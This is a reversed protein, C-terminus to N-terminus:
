VAGVVESFEVGTGVAVFNLQIFNISRAPKIFIDGVFENRDIVGSTNNTEDCVVKFDYIGRRGQIDRLFPEVLNKFQSRTFEDNFEFLLSQASREIAKELTIFLRRVNIRDFASPRGLLTKDGFLIVGSGPFTVVPNIDNTYLVDRDAKDPNYALKIVNKISGRSLGAPSFFFDRDADTKAITGGIDGNLPVYRYVDNFKDYQYKYGSDLIAYSSSTLSNRFDVIDSVADTASADAYTPSVCVISDKRVSTVNDIWYNALQTDNTGGLAKGAMCISIDIEEKNKFKDIASQLGGLINTSSEAAGDAGTGFSFTEPAAVTITSALNVATNSKSTLATTEDGTYVWNSKDRLVTKYFNDAGTETKADSARSLNEFVEIVQGATGSIDGDEDVVVVHLADKISTNSNREALYQTRGPARDVFNYYEWFREVNSSSVNSGLTMKSNFTVTATGTTSSGDNAVASTGVSLVQMYQYGTSSTGVKVYDGTNIDGLIDDVFAAAANSEQIGTSGISATLVLTNAGNTANATFTVDGTTLGYVSLDINTNVSATTINSTYQNAAACVSIKLSNGLAGPYKAIFSSNASSSITDIDYADFNKVQLQDGSSSGAIQATANYASSDVGRSVYLANGYGLFNSATFFGEFYNNSPKGFRNVLETENSVLIPDEVPGWRLAAAVAGTTTAVAPVSTTLDIESINVGPSVQFPM